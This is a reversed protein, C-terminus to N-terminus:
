LGETKRSFHRADKLEHIMTDASQASKFAGYLAKLGPERKKPGSKLSASLQAILELKSDAPLNKLLDMYHNVIHTEPATM